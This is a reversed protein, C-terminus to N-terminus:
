DSPWEWGFDPEQRAAAPKGNGPKEDGGEDEPKKKDPKKDPKPDPKPEPGLSTYITIPSGEAADGSPTTFAVLGRDYDSYAEPGVQVQFGANRLVKTAKSVTMGGVWPVDVTNGAIVQPDVEHFDQAKLYQDIVQMADGWMPAAQGSGSASGIYSGGVVQGNLSKWTGDYNAGAIMAATALKPTYGMFWVARNGNITGTKGAAPVSLAENSAFGGELLGRLIDNVADATGKAMVQQCKPEYKKIVKDNADLIENVPISDCHKGRAGFTAYAEAMELPSVSTVGLTFSPVREDKPDTLQIGMKQAMKYPACLGTIQELQAYFTNVSERTGTYADKAGSTTSNGVPWTGVRNGDGPCGAFSSEQLVINEPSNIKQKLPFGQEIAATLVFPKFTSGAQFGASDGYQTPVMYNLYSQGKKRKDGMPRSQALGRVRGTGPEVMALAGIADDTAYVHDEVSEQAADQFRQDLTTKITLGGSKLLALRDAETEGFAPDKVLWNIVYDCFFEASSGLCGNRQKQVNLGLDADKMKEAEPRSIVNLGAMRDLVVNRRAITADPYNTPDYGTPNKVMGALMASQQWNLESANVNFYHKAAAQVGYAGDGFYAANLYRELIWDKSHKEELAIAYRLERIKRATSKEIAAKREEETKASYVLTTKVLQQTISSGGQVSDSAQNTILARLTGKLDMAGHQYFRYDEIALLAKTMNSSIQDLPRYVRNQDYLTTILKGKRDVIKTTQSMEDIEFAQPLSDMKEATEKAAIGAVGAFPIALGAAVVGLVAAVGCMVALHKLVTQPRLSPSSM